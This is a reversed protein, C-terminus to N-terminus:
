RPVGHAESDGGLQYEVLRLPGLDKSTTLTTTAAVHGRRPKCHFSVLEEKPGVGPEFRYFTTCPEGRAMKADDHVILVPGSVFTRNVLMPEALNVISWQKTATVTAAESNCCACEANDCCGCAADDCCAHHEICCVKGCAKGGAFLTGAGAFVVLAAITIFIRLRM